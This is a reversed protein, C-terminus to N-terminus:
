GIVDSLQIIPMMIAMVIFLVIGAMMLTIMPTFMSLTNSVYSSLERQQNRAARDLMQDLEGSSEGSGIMQVLMPPFVEHKSMSRSLSGGESVRVSVDKIAEKIIVNSAVQETIQIAEVLPVTSKVLIALTSAFREMNSFLIFQSMGPTKLFFGHMRKKFDMRTRMMYSLAILFLVLFLIIYILYNGSFDSVVLLIRTALPLEVAKGEFISLIQPVVSELLFGVIAFSAVVLICPYVLAGKVESQTEEKDETYEALKELVSDLHGAHEGSSITSRYVDPFSSPFEALAVALTHGELVKSRVALMMAKVRASRAQKSISKLAEEVGMGSQILTSLQRTVLSLEQAKIPRPGLNFFQTSQAAKKEKQESLEVELPIWSKEKLLQRIQRPSDGELVGKKKRGKEDLAQYEFAAV